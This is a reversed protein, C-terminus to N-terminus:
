LDEGRGGLGEGQLQGKEKEKVGGVFQVAYKYTLDLYLYPDNSDGGSTNSNTNDAATGTTTDAYDLYSRKNSISHQQQQKTGKDDKMRGDVAKMDDSDVEIASLVTQQVDKMSMCPEIQTGEGWENFSTISVIDGKAAIARLWMDSYYSGQAGGRSRSNHTNWPRILSDNYGPGVSLGCIFNDHKKAYTCMSKWNSSTSGYSFGDTAFYTYFGNFGAQQLDRGHEHNLWLELVVADIPTNRITIDGNNTLLQTWKEPQIHYSDYM